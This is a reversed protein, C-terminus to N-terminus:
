PLSPQSDTSCSLDMAVSTPDYDQGTAVRLAALVGQLSIVDNRVKAIEQELKVLYQRKGALQVEIRNCLTCLDNHSPVDAM